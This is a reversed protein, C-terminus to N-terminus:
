RRFTADAAHPRQAVAQGVEYDHGMEAIQGDEDETADGGAPPGPDPRPVKGGDPPSEPRDRDAVVTRERRQLLLEPLPRAPADVFPAEQAV